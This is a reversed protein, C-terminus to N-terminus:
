TEARFVRGDPILMPTQRQYRRYADGYTNILKREEFYIGIRIYLLAALGFVVHRWDPQSILLGALAVVMGLYLPHRSYRLLGGQQLAEPANPAPRIPWGVFLALDYQWFARWGLFCGLGMLLGGGVLSGRWPSLWDAPAARLSLLVPLFTLLAVINYFLRYYPVPLRGAQTAWQRFRPAATLSHVVGFFLWSLLLFLYASMVPCFLTAAQCVAPLCRLSFATAAPLM